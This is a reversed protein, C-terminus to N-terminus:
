GVILQMWISSPYVVLAAAALAIGYPVGSKRDHLRAVWPQRIVMAPLVAGRFSLLLLTLGGGLVASLTLFELVHHLGLWLAAVAALKADGGGIWGAAFCGFAVLLVVAGAALHLLVTELNMGTFPALAIFGVILVLSLRNSITMTFLDSAAAYAMCVPFLIFALQMIM